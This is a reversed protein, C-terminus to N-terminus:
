QGLKGAKFIGTWKDEFSQSLSSEKIAVHDEYLAFDGQVCYYLDSEPEPYKSTKPTEVKFIVWHHKVNDGEQLVTLVSGSDLEKRFFTVVDEPGSTTMGKYATMVGVVTATQITENGPIITLSTINEKNERSVVKWHYEEPWNVAIHEVPRQAEATASLLIGYLLFIIRKM